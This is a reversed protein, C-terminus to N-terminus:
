GLHALSLNNLVSFSLWKIWYGPQIHDKYKLTVPFIVSESYLNLWFIDYFCLSEGSYVHDQFFKFWKGSTTTLQVFFKM